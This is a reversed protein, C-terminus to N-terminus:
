QSSVIEYVRSSKRPKAELGRPWTASPEYSISLVVKDGRLTSYTSTCLAGPRIEVM